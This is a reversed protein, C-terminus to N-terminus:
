GGGEGDGAFMRRKFEEEILLVQWAAGEPRLNLLTNDGNVYVRDFAEEVPRDAYGQAAFFRELAANNTESDRLTRWIVLVRKGEPDAGELTRFGDITRLRRVRLGLLYNFTEPLDVTAARSEGGQTVTLQYDFPTEFAELDLLSASGDTEVDLCYSLLYDERLAPVQELLQQQVTPRERLRLNNLADEYSELVLYKLLHSSGERSAPKGDRWDKSYVVKQIRPKLVTEFYEGMEILIYKRNGGDERNLNIVAHGTTGSGAFFDLLVASEQARTTIQSIRTILRTPKPYSIVRGQSFLDDLESNANSNDGAFKRDFLTVPVLGQQVESLYRKIMPYSRGAGWIVENSKVKALFTQESFRWYQGEPRSLEIGNPKVVKYDAAYPNNAYIPDPKWPGKPDGDPNTYASSDERPILVRDWNEKNRAYATIYDHSVSFYRASNKRTHVKEWIIQALFNEPGCIQDLLFRLKAQENDDLSVFLAADDKLLNVALALRDYIM